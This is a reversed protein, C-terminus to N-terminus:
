FLDPRCLRHGGQPGRRQQPVQLRGRQLRNGAAPQDPRDADPACRRRAPKAVAAARQRDSRLLSYATSLSRLVTATTWSSATSPRPRGFRRRGAHHHRPPAENQCAGPACHLHELGPCLQHLLAAPYRRHDPRRRWTSTWRSRAPPTCLTQIRGGVFVTSSLYSGDAASAPLVSGLTTDSLTSTPDYDGTRGGGRGLLALCCCGPSCPTLIVALVCLVARYLRPAPPASRAM